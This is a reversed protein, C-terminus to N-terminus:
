FQRYGTAYEIIDNQFQIRASLQSQGIISCDDMARCLCKLNGFPCYEMLIITGYSFLHVLIQMIAFPKSDKRLSETFWHCIIIMM